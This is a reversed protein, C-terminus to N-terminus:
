IAGRRTYRHDLEIGCREQGSQHQGAEVHKVDDTDGEEPGAMAGGGGGSIIFNSCPRANASNAREKQRQCGQDERHQAIRPRAVGDSAAAM